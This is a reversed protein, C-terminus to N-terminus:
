YDEENENVVDLSETVVRTKISHHNKKILDKEANAREIYPIPNKLEKIIFEKWDEPKIKKNHAEKFIEMASVKQALNSNHLNAFKVQLFLRNFLKYIDKIEMSSPTKSLIRPNIMTSERPSLQESLGDESESM